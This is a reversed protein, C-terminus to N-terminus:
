SIQQLIQKDTDTISRIVQTFLTIASSRQSVLTQLTLSDQEANANIAEAEHRLDSSLSDLHQISVSDGPLSISFEAFLEAVTDGNPLVTTAPLTDGAEHLGEAAMVQRVAEVARQKAIVEKAREVRSTINSTADSIQADLHGMTRRALLLLGQPSISGELQLSDALGTAAMLEEISGLFEGAAQLRRQRAYADRDVTPSGANTTQLEDALDAEGAAPRHFPAVAPEAGRYLELLNPM